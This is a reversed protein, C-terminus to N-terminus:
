YKKAQKLVHIKTQEVHLLPPSDSAHASPVMHIGAKSRALAHMVQCVPRIAMHAVRKLGKIDVFRTWHKRRETAIAHTSCSQPCGKIIADTLEISVAETSGLVSNVYTCVNYFSAAVL